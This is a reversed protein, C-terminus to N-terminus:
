FLALDHEPNLPFRQDVESGTIGLLDRLNKHVHEPRIRVGQNPNAAPELTAPDLPIISHGETTRGVVRNGQFGPLGSIVIMSSVPWHDKGNNGNYGPPGGNGMRGFDSTILMVTREAIGAADVRAWILNALDLLNTMATRHSADHNSHTDFGGRAFNVATGVGARYAAIALEVQATQGTGQLTPLLEELRKLQDSGTRAALLTNMSADIKPLEVDAIRREARKRRALDILGRANPSHYLASTASDPNVRDPYIIGALRARDVERTTAVVGGTVEYGGFSLLAIPLHPGHFGAALAAINPHGEGLRGSAMHRRGADHNNTQVDVGNIVVMRPANTTFFTDWQAGIPAYNIDGATRIDGDNYLQNLYGKPDCLMTPEWGGVAQIQVFFPANEDDAALAKSSFGGVTCFGAAGALRLFDRRDMAM